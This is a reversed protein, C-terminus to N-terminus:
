SDYPTSPSQKPIQFSTNLSIDTLYHMPSVHHSTGLQAQLQQQVHSKNDTGEDDDFTPFFRM